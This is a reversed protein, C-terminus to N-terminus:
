RRWFVFRTLVDHTVAAIRRGIENVLDLGRRGCVGSTKIVVPVVCVGSVIDNYKQTKYVEATAAVSGAEHSGAFLHCSACTDPFTDDWAMASVSRMAASATDIRQDIAPIRGYIKHDKFKRMLEM